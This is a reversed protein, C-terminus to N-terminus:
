EGVIVFAGWYYPDAFKARVARQAARFAEHKDGNRLWNRYFETMLIQTTQDNVKWLSMIITRAGAVKFARQLGYVGEGNRIEGLGTECASLVVLDTNELNLNMAEYATLIGDEVNKVNSGGDESLDDEGFIDSDDLPDDEAAAEAGDKEALSSGAGTLLLGSRFLPNRLYESETGDLDKKFFGHTAIHLVKPKFSNKINDELAEDGLFVKAEWEMDVNQLLTQINEIETKTGPLYDLSVSGRDIEPTPTEEFDEELDLGLDDEGSSRELTREAVKTRAEESLGYNPAGFFLALRNFLEDNSKLILDKTNTVLQLEIEDIVAKGSTPDILTNLNIQNYVGAPSIFIKKVGKLSKAIPAWYNDYSLDDTKLFKIKNRYYNLFKGELDNGNDFLVLEPHDKTDPKVILAAYYVSDTLGFRPYAPSNPQNINKIMEAIGFKHFRIIELAAEGEKLTSQVEQWTYRKKDTLKAFNESRLSLTKEVKNVISELSDIEKQRSKDQEQYLKILYAKQTQWEDLLRVLKIDGSHKIRQKWKNSANLLIAKTALQNNYVEGLIKPDEEKHLFAFSNFEEFHDRIKNNYFDEKEKESLFPFYNDIQVFLNQSIQNYLPAAKSFSQQALYLETFAELVDATQPHRAGLVTKSIKLSESLATESEQYAKRETQIRAWDKLFAAYLPHETGLSKKAAELGQNMIENAEELRGLRIYAQSLSALSRIYRPSEQGGAELFIKNAQDLLEVAQNNKEQLEYLEALNSIVTAYDAKQIDQNDIKVFEKYIDISQQYAEESRSYNGIRGYLNGLANYIDARVNAANHLGITAEYVKEAKRLAIEAKKYNGIYAYLSGLQELAQAYRVHKVGSLKKRMRLYELYLKESKDYVGMDRYMRAQNHLFVAHYTTGAGFIAQALDVAEQMVPEISLFDGQQNLLQLYSFHVMFYDRSEKTYEKEAEVLLEKLRTISSPYDLKGDKFCRCNSFSNDQKYWIVCGEYVDPSESILSEAVMQLAGDMWYDKIEGIPLDDKYNAVRYFQAKSADTIVNNNGDMLITWTGQKKGQGDKKNPNQPIQAFVTSVGLCLLIALILKRHM